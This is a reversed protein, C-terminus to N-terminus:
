KRPLESIILRQLANGGHDADDAMRTGPRVMRRARNERHAIEVPQMASMGYQDAVRAIERPCLAPWSRHQSKLRVRAAHEERGGLREAERREADLLALQRPEADVEQEHLVEIDGKRCLAGLVEDGVYNNCRDAGRVDNDAPVGSEAVAAAAVGLQQPGRAYLVTEAHGHDLGYASLILGDIRRRMDALQQLGALRAFRRREEAPEPFDVAADRNAVPAAPRDPKRGRIKTEVIIQAPRV